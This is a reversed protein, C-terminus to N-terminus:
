THIAGIKVENPGHNPDPYQDNSEINLHVEPVIVVPPIAKPDVKKDPKTEKAKKDEKKLIPKGTKPDLIIEEKHAVNWEHWFKARDVGRNLLYEMHAELVYSFTESINGFRGMLGTLAVGGGLSLFVASMIDYLVPQSHTHQMSYKTTNILVEVALQSSIQTSKPDTFIAIISGCISIFPWLIPHRGVETTATMLHDVKTTDFFDDFFKPRSWTFNEPVNQIGDSTSSESNLFSYFNKMAYVSTTSSIEDSHLMKFGSEAIAELTAAIGIPGCKAVASAYELAAILVTEELRSSTQNDTKFVSVPIAVINSLVNSFECHTSLIAYVSDTCYKCVYLSAEECPSKSLPIATCPLPPVASDPIELQRYVSDAAALLALIKLMIPRLFVKEVTNEDSQPRWSYVRPDYLTVQFETLSHSGCPGLVQLLSSIVKVQEPTAFTKVTEKCDAESHTLIAEVICYAFYLSETYESSILV